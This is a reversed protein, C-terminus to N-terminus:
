LTRGAVDTELHVAPNMALPRTTDLSVDSEGVRWRCADNTGERTSFCMPVRAVGAVGHGGISEPTFTWHKVAAIASREIDNGPKPQGGEVVTAKTVNGSADYHVELLVAGGRKSMLAGDPYKPPTMTGYRPGTGADRLQVRYFGDVPELTVHITLTTESPVAVGKVKGTTFHWTRVAPELRQYLGPNLGDTPKLSVVKGAADLVVNWSMTLDVPKGAAAVVAPSLWLLGLLM